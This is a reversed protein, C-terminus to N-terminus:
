TELLCYDVCRYNIISKMERSLNRLKRNTMTKCCRALAETILLQKVVAKQCLQYLIGLQGVRVGNAHLLSTLSYSDFPLDCLSDLLSALNPIHQTYLLSVSSLFSLFEREDGMSKVTNASIPNRSLRSQHALLSHIPSSASVSM